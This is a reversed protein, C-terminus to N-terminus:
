PLIRLRTTLPSMHPFWKSTNEEKNSTKLIKEGKIVIFNKESIDLIMLTQKTKRIIESRAIKSLANKYYGGKVILVALKPCVECLKWLDGTVSAGFEVEIAVHPPKADSDLWVVDIYESGVSYEAIAKFGLEVGMRKCIDVVQDHPARYSKETPKISYDISALKEIIKNISKNLRKAVPVYSYEGSACDYALTTVRYCTALSFSTDKVQMDVASSIRRGIAPRFLDDIGIYRESIINKSHFNLICLIMKPNFMLVNKTPQSLMGKSIIINDRVGELVYFNYLDVYRWKYGTM